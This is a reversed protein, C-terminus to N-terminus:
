EALLPQYKLWVNQVLRFIVLILWITWDWIGSAQDARMLSSDLPVTTAGHQAVAGGRAAPEAPVQGRARALGRLSLLESAVCRAREAAGCTSASTTARM